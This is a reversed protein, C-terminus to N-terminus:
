VPGARHHSRHNHGPPALVEDAIRKQEGSLAAYLPREVALLANLERIGAAHRQQAREMREIANAYRRQRAETGVSQHAHWSTRRQERGAAQERLQQAFANWQPLQADTIKLATKMYSLTAEIRETPKSFARKERRDPPTPASHSVVASAPTASNQALAPGVATTTLGVTLLFCAMFSDM